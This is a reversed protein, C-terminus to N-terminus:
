DNCLLCREQGSNSSAQSNPRKAITLQSKQQNPLKTFGSKQQSQTVQTQPVTPVTPLSPMSPLKSKQFYLRSSALKSITSCAKVLQQQYGRAISIGSAYGTTLQELNNVLHDEHHSVPLWTMMSTTVDKLDLREVPEFHKIFLLLYRLIQKVRTLRQDTDFELGLIHDGRIHNKIVELEFSKDGFQSNLLGFIEDVTDHVLILQKFHAPLVTSKLFNVAEWDYMSNNVMFEHFSKKWSLYAITPLETDETFVPPQIRGFNRTAKPQHSLKGKWYYATSKWDTAGQQNRM